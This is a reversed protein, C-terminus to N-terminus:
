RRAMVVDVQSLFPEIQSVTWLSPGHHYPLRPLLRRFWVSDATLWFSSVSAATWKTRTGRKIWDLVGVRQITGGMNVTPVKIGMVQNLFNRVSMFVTTEMTIRFGVLDAVSILWWWSYKPSPLGGVSQIFSESPFPHAAPRSWLDGSGFTLWGLFQRGLCLSVNNLWIDPCRKVLDLAWLFDWFTVAIM